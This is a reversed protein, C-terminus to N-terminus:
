IPTAAGRVALLATYPPSGFAALREVDAPLLPLDRGDLWTEGMAPDVWPDHVVFVGDVFSHVMIWHPCPEIGFPAEDVLLLALRGSDLAARIQASTVAERRVKIDTAAVAERFRMQFYRRVDREKESHFEELLMFADTTVTLDVDLGRRKAALALGYPDCAEVMTAERWIEFELQRTPLMDTQFHALAMLLSTPGCTFYTTQSLYPPAISPQTSHWWVEATSDPAGPEDMAAPQQHILGGRLVSAQPQKLARKVAVAGSQWAHELTFVVLARELGSSDEIEPAIWVDAVKVYQGIARSVLLMAGQLGTNDRATVMAVRLPSTYRSWRELVAEPLGVSRWDEPHGDAVM